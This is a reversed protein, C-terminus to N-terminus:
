GRPLVGDRRLRAILEEASAFCLPQPRTVVTAEPAARLWRRHGLEAASLGVDYLSLAEINGDPSATAEPAAGGAAVCLVAAGPGRLRQRGATTRREVELVREAGEDGSALWRAGLVASLHPVDLKDAVAPGVAGEVGDGAVLLRAGLTRATAALAAALGLYDTEALVPDWLRVARAAGVALARRLLPEEEPPGARLAIVPGLGLALALPGEDAADLLVLVAGEIRPLSPETDSM